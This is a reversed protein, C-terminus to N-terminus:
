VAESPRGGPARRSTGGDPAQIRCPQRRHPRAPPSCRLCLLPQGDGHRVICRACTSSSVPANFSSMSGGAARNSSAAIATAATVFHDFATGERRPRSNPTRAALLERKAGLFDAQFDTVTTSFLDQQQARRHAGDRPALQRRSRHPPLRSAAASAATPRPRPTRRPPQRGQRARRNV